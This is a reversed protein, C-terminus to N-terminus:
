RTDCEHPNKSGEAVQWHRENDKGIEDPSALVCASLSTADESAIGMEKQGEKQRVADSANSAAAAVGCM